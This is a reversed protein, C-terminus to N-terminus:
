FEQNSIDILGCGNLKLEVMNEKCESFIGVVFYQFCEESDVVDNVDNNNGRSMLDFKLIIGFKFCFFKLLVVAIVNECIIISEKLLVKYERNVGGSESDKKSLDVVNDGGGSVIVKQDKGVFCERFSKLVFDQCYNFLGYILLCLVVCEFCELDLVVEKIM